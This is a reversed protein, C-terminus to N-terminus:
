HLQEMQSVRRPKPETLRGQAMRARSRFPLAAVSRLVRCHLEATLPPSALLAISLGLPLCLDELPAAPQKQRMPLRGQAVSRELSVQQRVLESELWM